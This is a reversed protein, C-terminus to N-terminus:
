TFNKDNYKCIDVIVCDLCKPKRAKCIYRGHLVLWHHAKKKWKAPILKLLTKETAEPTRTNCFGIRNSVRFVHTDVAITPKEFISNLMVNASKAGVGPLRKLDDFNNPVMGGYEDLLMKSMNIINKAKSNFLGITKIYDKLKKEGLNVIQKPTNAIEFLAPTIRNVGKDTSQASLIVAILLTYPTTYNLEIKPNPNTKLLRTFIKDIDQTKIM